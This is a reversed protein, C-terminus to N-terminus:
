RAAPLAAPARDAIQADSLGSPYAYTEGDEVIARFFPAVQAVDAATAERLRLRGTSAISTEDPTTDEHTM